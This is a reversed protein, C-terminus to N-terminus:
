QLIAVAARLDELALREAAEAQRLSLTASQLIQEPRRLPGSTQRTRGTQRAELISRQRLGDARLRWSELRQRLYEGARELSPRQDDPVKDLQDLREEAAKLEPVITSEITRILNDASMRGARYRDVEMEYRGATRQELAAMAALETRGDDIGALLFGSVLTLVGATALVKGTRKAAPKGKDIERSLFFGCVAGVLLAAFDARAPITGSVLAYLFFVGAMPALPRAVHWPILAERSKLFVRCALAALMGYMGMVAGSAGLSLDLPSMSLSVLSATIAATLCVTAFAMSGILREAIIGFAALGALNALLAVFGPNVFSASVLRYWEGNTTRPGINGGWDILSDRGWGTSLAISFFVLVCAVGVLPVVFPWPTREALAKAFPQTSPGGRVTEPFGKAAKRLMVLARTREEPTMLYGAVGALVCLAIFTTM